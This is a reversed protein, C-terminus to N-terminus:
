IRTLTYATTYNICVTAKTAFRKLTSLLSIQMVEGCCFGWGLPNNLENFTASKGLYIYGEEKEYYKNLILLCM